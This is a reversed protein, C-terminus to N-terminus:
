PRDDRGHHGDGFELRCLQDADLRLDVGALTIALQEESQPGVIPFTAFPQSLVFALAVNIPRVDLEAALKRARDRREYNGASGWCRWVNPDLSEPPVDAFFGRAQSSWPFLSLEAGQLHWRLEAPTAECGPYLPESPEALSFHNSLAVMGSGARGLAYRNAERLRALTWNSGGYTQIRGAAVEDELADVFEDVPVSPNDRHLLYLDVRDVGLTELTETLQTSVMSPVCDPPHAGKALIVLGEPRARRIWDGVARESSGGGYVRATDVCNGGASVFADLLGYRREDRIGSAGLVCRSV